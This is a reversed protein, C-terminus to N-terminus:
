FQTYEIIKSVFLFFDLDAVYKGSNIYYRPFDTLLVTGEVEKPKNKIYTQLYSRIATKAALECAEKVGDAGNFVSSEGKGGITPYVVSQRIQREHMMRETLDYEVWCEFKSEESYLIPDNYQLRPDNQAITGLPEVSFYEPVGRTNDSPTYSFKWGYVLAETFFPALQKIGNVAFAAYGNEDIEQPSQMIPAGETAFWLPFRLTSQTVNNQSFLINPIFVICSFICAFQKIVNRMYTKKIM